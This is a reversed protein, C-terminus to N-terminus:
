RRRRIAVLIAAGFVLAPALFVAFAFVANMQPTTITLRSDGAERPRIAILNEQATLWNVANMFMDVNGLQGAYANAAFDADGLIVLRTEPETPKKTADAAGEPPDPPKPTSVAVGIPVPGQRDGAETNLEPATRERLGKTDSEAWAAAATEVVPQVTRGAPPTMAPVVSRAIPFVTSVRFQEAIPHAPYPPSAVIFTGNPSRGSLDVIIDNGIDVGWEKALGTLLPMQADNAEVAPDIMLLLRGGRALYRKV